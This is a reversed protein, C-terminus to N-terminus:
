PQILQEDAYEWVEDKNLWADTSPDYVFMLVDDKLRWVGAGSDYYVFPTNVDVPIALVTGSGYLIHVVESNHNVSVPGLGEPPILSQDWYHVNYDMVLARKSFDEFSWYPWYSPNGDSDLHGDRGRYIYSSFVDRGGESEPLDFYGLLDSRRASVSLDEQKGTDVSLYEPHILTTDRKVIKESPCYFVSLVEDLHPYLYGLGHRKQQEVEWVNYIQNSSEIDLEPIVSKHLNAYLTLAQGIQRLNNLCQTRKAAERVRGIAPLLLAALLGIIAIVALLEVLTFGIKKKRSM